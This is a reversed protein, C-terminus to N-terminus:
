SRKLICFIIKDTDVMLLLYNNTIQTPQFLDMNHLPDKIIVLYMIGQDTFAIYFQEPFGNNRYWFYFVTDM